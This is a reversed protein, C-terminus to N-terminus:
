EEDIEEPEWDGPDIKRIRDGFVKRFKELYELMWAHQKPWDDRDNPDMRPNRVYVHSAADEGVLIVALAPPRGIKEVILKVNPLLSQNTRSSFEKGDIITAKKFGM